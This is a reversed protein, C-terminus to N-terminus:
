RKKITESVGEPLYELCDNCLNTKGIVVSPASYYPDESSTSHNRRRKSMYQRIRPLFKHMGSRVSRNNYQSIFNFNSIKRNLLQTFFIVELGEYPSEVVEYSNSEVDTPNESVPSCRGVSSQASTTGQGLYTGKLRQNLNQILGAKSNQM